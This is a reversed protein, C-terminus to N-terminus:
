GVINTLKKHRKKKRKLSLFNFDDDSSTSDSDNKFDKLGKKTIRKKRLKEWALCLNQKAKEKKALLLIEKEKKQKFLSIIKNVNIQICQKNKKEEFLNDLFFKITKEGQNLYIDIWPEKIEFVKITKLVFRLFEETYFGKRM